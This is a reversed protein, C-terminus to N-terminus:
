LDTVVGNIPHNNLMAARVANAIDSSRDMFSQSDMANVNVTIQTSNGAQGSGGSGGSGQSPPPAAASQSATQTPASLIGSIDVAPPATYIPLQTATSGGGGFLGAIGSIIPSLFGLAGGFLSSTVSGLVGSGSSGKASTNSQIAQTNATILDAQQQYAAQLQSIQQAAQSLSNSLDGNDSTLGEGIAPATPIGARRSPAIASFVENISDHAM